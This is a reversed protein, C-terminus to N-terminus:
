QIRWAEQTNEWGREVILFGSRVFFNLNPKVSCDFHLSRTNPIWKIMKSTKFFEFILYFMQFINIRRYKFTALHLCSNSPIAGDKFTRSGDEPIKM